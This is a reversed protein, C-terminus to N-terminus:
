GRVDMKPDLADRLADGILNIAMVCTFVFAGPMLTIWPATRLYERGDAAMSGLSAMPPQVGLGIFSLGAEALIAWAVQMTSIVLISGMVNPLIHIFIIRWGSAGLARAALVMEREKWSLYEGRVVRATVPWATVGIVLVLVPISRGLITVVGLMLFFTPFSLWIDTVRMLVNDVMGGAYGAIAGVMVGIAVRLMVAVLAVSLSVRAAYLVRSLLDRGLQDTGFLHKTSPSQLRNALDTQAPPYPALVPALVAAIVLLTMVCLGVVAARSRGFRRWFPRRGSIELEDPEAEM